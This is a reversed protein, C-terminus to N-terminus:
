MLYLIGILTIYCSVSVVTLIVVTSGSTEFLELGVTDRNEDNVNNAHHQDLILKITQDRRYWAILLLLVGYVTFVIGIPIFEKSFIKLVVM